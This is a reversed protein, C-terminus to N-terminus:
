KREVKKKSPDADLRLRQHKTSKQPKARREMEKELRLEASLARRELSEIQATQASLKGSAKALERVISDRETLLRELNSENKANAKLIQERLEFQLALDTRLKQVEADLQANEKHAVELRFETEEKSKQAVSLQELVQKRVMELQETARTIEARFKEEEASVKEKLAGVKSQCELKMELVIKEAGERAADAEQGLIDLQAQATEKASRESSAEQRLSSLQNRSHDLESQLAVNEKQLDALKRQLQETREQTQALEQEIEESRKSFAKEGHEVATAWAILMADAVPRPLAARLADVKTQEDKWLKLEDNITTRSGQRIEAYVLDVTVEHSQRGATVLRAAAERTRFRTDSIRSM